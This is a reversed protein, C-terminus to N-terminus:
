RGGDPLPGPPSINTPVPAAPPLTGPRQPARQAEPSQQALPVALDVETKDSHYLPVARPRHYRSAAEPRGRELDVATKDTDSWATTTAMCVLLVGGFWARLCTRRIPISM